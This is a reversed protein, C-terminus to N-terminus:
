GAPIYWSRHQCAETGFMLESMAKIEMFPCLNNPIYDISLFFFLAPACLIKSSNHEMFMVNSKVKGKNAVKYAMKKKKVFSSQQIM